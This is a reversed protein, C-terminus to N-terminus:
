DAIRLTLKQMDQHRERDIAHVYRRTTEDNEHRHNARIHKFQIGARDQMSASLHRLWHASFKKLKKIKDPQHTFKISTEIALAKLIKNIQRPKIAEDSDLSTILPSEDDSKPYITKKLFTRYKIVSRMLEDCVPIMGPKDGKGVVYFWWCNDVKCFASWTHTALENVRLGLFYLINILFRLREKAQKEDYEKEPLSELTDLMAYWEDLDLMREQLSLMAPKVSSRTHRKRMLALPNFNLYRADVLYNLLSDICRIATQKASHSLGGVFPRWGAEGRKRNGGQDRACWIHRPKPNDLFEFYREFDDRDLSSLPKKRQFVAWLLLREAEKQYSRYTTEKRRYENLWCQIAEYDHKAHIQCREQRERNVGEAGNLQLADLTMPLQQLSPFTIESRETM